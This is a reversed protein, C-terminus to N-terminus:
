ICLRSFIRGIHGIERAPDRQAADARGLVDGPRCDKEGGVHRAVDGADRQRDVAAIECTLEQRARYRVRDVAGAAWASSRRRTLRFTTPLGVPRSGAQGYVSNHMRVRKPCRSRRRCIPRYRAEAANRTRTGSHRESLMATAGGRGPLAVALGSAVMTETDRLVVRRLKTGPAGSQGWVQGPVMVTVLLLLLLCVATKAVNM